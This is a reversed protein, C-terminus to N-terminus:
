NTSKFFDVRLISTINYKRICLSLRGVVGGGVCVISLLSVFFLIRSYLSFSRFKLIEWTLFTFLLFFERVGAFNSLLFCSLFTNAEFPPNPLSTGM